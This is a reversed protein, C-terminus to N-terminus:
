DVTAVAVRLLVLDLPEVAFRRHEEDALARRVDLLGDDTAAEEGIVLELASGSQSAPGTISPRSRIARRKRSCASPHARSPEGNYAPMRARAASSMATPPM